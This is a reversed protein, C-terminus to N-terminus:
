ETERKQTSKFSCLMEVTLSCDSQGTWIAGPIFNIPALEIGKDRRCSVARRIVSM